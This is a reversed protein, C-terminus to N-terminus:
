SKLGWKESIYNEARQLEVDTMKQPYFNVVINRTNNNVKNEIANSRYEKNEKATLVGEGKHLRAVYNDYPVYDLGNAHGPLSSTNIKASVSLLSTLKSAIGRATGFIGNLLNNDSLGTKFSNLIRHGADESLRGARLESIVIDADAVGAQKLLARLEENSLGLLFGQLNELGKQTFNGREDLAQEALKMMRETTSVIEPTKEETINVMEEIKTRLDEPYQSIIETYIDHSDTALAKWASIVDESNEGVVSTMGKLQEITSLMGQKTTNYMNENTKKAIEDGEAAAKNMELKAQNNYYQQEKLMETLTKKVIKGDKEYTTAVNNVIKQLSENSGETFLELNYQYQKIDESYGDITNTLSDYQGKLNEVNNCVNTYNGEMEKLEKKLSRSRIFENNKIAESFEDAKEMYAEYVKQKEAEAKTLQEEIEAREQYYKKQEDRAKAFKEAGSDIIAEAQKKLIVNDIEGQLEQYKQIVGDTMTVELGLSESLQNAIVQARAEYGEKVKGNEDVIQTLESYLNKCYELENLKSDRSDDIAKRAEQVAQAEQKTKELAEASAEAQKRTEATAEKIDNKYKAYAISAATIAVTTLGIPSKLASIASALTKAGQTTDKTQGKLVGMAGKLTGIGTTVGGITKIASGGIKIAPGAAVVLAGSKLINNKTEKDLESFKKVASSITNLMPKADKVIQRLSPALEDGFEIALKTVDNKLMVIQSETNEYRKSAENTLAVNENWARTGTEIARNFLDGANAARLLSDRLRVETLGMESLMTIASEGKEEANGLGQIFATLASTADEQWAKKFEEATMGAVASFDELNTGATILQQVETSTMGISQSLAKFSKSDNKSMLELERLTMNTQKLVSDLKEDGMEVANQMKVMAKSLASGGMEAEIGVSSLATALGMIQAESMGVQHGAGALRTAMEVIDAETTAFNNGLDVIASGLKDFDKQSMQVVNAFKALESAAEESSLNTSNGLDLMAKSFSLINETEIGLQGASEAVASIESASAPMQTSLDLIGKRLNALEEDTAEVTKTVGTFASEFDVSAKVSAVALGGTIGSVISLKNGVKEIKNGINKITEGHEIWAQSSKQLKNNQDTISKNTEKIANDTAQQATEAKIIKNNTTEITKALTQHRNEQIELENELKKAEESDKGMSSAVAEYKSRLSTITGEQKSYEEQLSKLLNKNNEVVSAQQNYKEKLLELKKTLLDTNENNGKLQTSNLKLQNNLSTITKEASKVNSNFKNVDAEFQIQQKNKSM